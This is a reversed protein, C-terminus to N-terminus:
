GPAAPSTPQPTSGPSRHSCCPRGTAGSRTSWNTSRPRGHGRDTPSSWGTDVPPSWACCCELGGTTSCTRTTSWCWRTPTSRSVRSRATTRVTSGARQYVRELAALLATKGHGGPGAVGVTLPGGPDQAASDLLAQM